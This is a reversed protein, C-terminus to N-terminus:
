DLPQTVLVLHWKLEEILREKGILMAVVIEGM